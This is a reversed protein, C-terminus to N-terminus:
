VNELLIKYGNFENKWDAYCGILNCQPCRCGIYLWRVDNSLGADDPYLNLGVTIQFYSTDCTCTAQYFEADDLYSEGDLMVHRKHCSTCERIAVCEEDDIFLRFIDSSCECVADKFKHIPLENLIAYRSLEEHVDKQCTGLYTNGKKIISM